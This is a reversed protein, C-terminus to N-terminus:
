SAIAQAPSPGLCEAIRTRLQKVSFDAKVFHAAVGLQRTADLDNATGFATIVIVPVKAWEPSQRLVRLFAFGDMEPMALDLLVLEPFHMGMVLLAEAGSRATVLRHGTGHLVTRYLRHMEPSDDIVLVTSM